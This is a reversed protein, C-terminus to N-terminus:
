AHTVEDGGPELRPLFDVQEPGDFVVTRWVRMPQGPVLADWVARFREVREPCDELMLLM